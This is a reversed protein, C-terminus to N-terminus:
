RFIHGDIAAHVGSVICNKSSPPKCYRGSVFCFAAGYAAPGPATLILKQPLEVVQGLGGGVLFLADSGSVWYYKCGKAIKFSSSLM